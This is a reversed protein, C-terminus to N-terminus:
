NTSQMTMSCWEKMGYDQILSESQTGPLSATKSNRAQISVNSQSLASNIKRSAYPFLMDAIKVACGVDIHIITDQRNYFVTTRVCQTTEAYDGEANMPLHTPSCEVAECIIDGFAIRTLPLSSLSLSCNEEGEAETAPRPLTFLLSMLKEFAKSKEICHKIAIRWLLSEANDCLVIPQETYQECFASLDFDISARPSVTLIFALFIGPFKELIYLYLRQATRERSRNLKERNPIRGRRSHNQTKNLTCVIVLREEFLSIDAEPITQEADIEEHKKYISAFKSMNAAM